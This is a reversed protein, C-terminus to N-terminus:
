VAAGLLAVIMLFVFSVVAGVVLDFFWNFAITM